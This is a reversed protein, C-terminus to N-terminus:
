ITIVSAKHGEQVRVYEIAGAPVFLRTTSTGANPSAAFAVYVATDTAIRAFPLGFTSVITTATHSAGPTISEVVQEGDVVSPISDGMNGNAGVKCFAIQTLAM